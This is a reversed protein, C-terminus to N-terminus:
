DSEQGSEFSGGLGVSSRLGAVLANVGALVADVIGAALNGVWVAQTAAAAGAVAGAELESKVADVAKSTELGTM